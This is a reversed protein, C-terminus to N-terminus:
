LGKMEVTVAGSHTAEVVPQPTVKSKRGGGKKKAPPEVQLSEIKQPCLTCEPSCNATLYWVDTSYGKGTAALYKYFGRPLKPGNPLSVKMLEKSPPMDGRRLNYVPVHGNHPMFRTIITLIESIDHTDIELTWMANGKAHITGKKKRAHQIGFKFAPFQGIKFDRNKLAHCAIDYALTSGFRLNLSMLHPSDPPFWYTAREDPLHIHAPVRTQLPSMANNELAPFSVVIDRNERTRLAELELRLPSPLDDVAERSLINSSERSARGLHVFPGVNPLRDRLIEYTKPFGLSYGLKTKKSYRYLMVGANRGLQVSVALLAYPTFAHSERDLNVNVLEVFLAEDSLKCLRSYQIRPVQLPKNDLKTESSTSM